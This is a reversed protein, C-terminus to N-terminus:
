STCYVYSKAMELYGATEPQVSSPADKAACCPNDTTHLSISLNTARKLSLAADTVAPSALTLEETRYFKPAEQGWYGIIRWQPRHYSWWRIGNWIRAGRDNRENYISLALAQTVARNREIVQTPRVGRKYLNRADDLDLLPTDDDLRYTALVKRSGHISPCAFMGPDWIELNGFTEAVAGAPELALYWIRYHGPNDLRGSGQIGLHM